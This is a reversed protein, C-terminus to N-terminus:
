RPAVRGVSSPPRGVLSGLSYIGSVAAMQTRYHSCICCRDAKRVSVVIYSGYLERSREASLFSCRHLWCFAQCRLPDVLHRAKRYTPEAQQLAQALMRLRSCNRPFPPHRPAAVAQACACHSFWTHHISSSRCCYSGGRDSLGLRRSIRTL